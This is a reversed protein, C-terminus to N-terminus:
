LVYRMNKHPQQLNQLFLFSTGNVIAAFSEGNNQGVAVKILSLSYLVIQQGRFEYLLEGTKISYSAM